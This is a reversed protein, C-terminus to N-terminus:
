ICVGALSVGGWGWGAKHQADTCCAICLQIGDADWIGWCRSNTCSRQQGVWWVAGYAPGHTRGPVSGVYSWADM